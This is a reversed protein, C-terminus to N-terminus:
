EICYFSVSCLFGSWVHILGTENQMVVNSLRRSAAWSYSVDDRCMGVNLRESCSIASERAVSGNWRGAVSEANAVRRHAKSSRTWARCAVVDACTQRGGTADKRRQGRRDDVADGRRREALREERRRRGLAGGQERGKGDGRLDDGDEELGEVDCREVDRRERGEKRRGLPQRERQLEQQVDARQEGRRRAGVLEVAARREDEGRGRRM